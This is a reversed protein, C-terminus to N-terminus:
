QALEARNRFQDLAEPNALAETNRVVRGNVVDGVALETIKGSRTRPIDTVAAIRAPVHRPSCNTRLRSRISQQLDDTLEVGDALRVFLVIRTDNEWLQGVALAEVVGPVQEVQAYLEATGIRVGNANLTADSRGYIVVGGTPTWAAFDGHAWVGPFRAFYANHFREGNADGLFGLPVSPFANTCVLEGKTGDRLPQGEDDFVDVALGLSPRQIEGVYVARTPDGGVFCGCLDTGGSMSQLHVDPSVADYVWRFGDDALPSGTSNVTRLSPLRHTDRPRLGALRCADIFKAGLGLFTLDYRQAIDFAREPGPHAINGEYLVITAHSALVSVLWNWMMWGCTTVYLVRDGARIDSALQQEKLHMLLVGGARHVICKPKGTTGSSYLIYLPQDFNFREFPRAANPTATAQAWTTCGPRTPEDDLNGVIIVDRLSPLQSRIEDLRELCDFRKGSYTYGDAAILVVPEVQGFRDIVGTVGFDASTSTFTAGVTAAALMTVVTEPLNPMWAAICDGRGIGLQRFHAALSATASRLQEWSLQRRRGDEREFLIAPQSGDTPGALLTEAVNLQAQPFWAATRLPDDPDGPVFATEGQHGIVGGTEWVAAWFPGPHDLSWRQLEDSDVLNLEHAANLTHRFADLRTTAVRSASPAWLPGSSMVGM